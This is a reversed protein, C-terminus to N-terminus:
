TLVLFLLVLEMEVRQPTKQPVLVPKLARPLLLMKVVFVEKFWLIFLRPPRGFIKNCCAAVLAEGFGVASHLLRKGGKRLRQQVKVCACCRTTHQTHSRAWPIPLSSRQPENSSSPNVLLSTLQLELEGQLRLDAAEDDDARRALSPWMCPFNWSKVGGGAAPWGAGAGAEVVSLHMRHTDSVCLCSTALIFNM